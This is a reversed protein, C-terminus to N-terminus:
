LDTIHEYDYCPYGDTDKGDEVIEYVEVSDDRSIMYYCSSDDYCPLSTVFEEPDSEWEKPIVITMITGDTYDLIIAKM